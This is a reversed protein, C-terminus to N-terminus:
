SIKNTRSGSVGTIEGSIGMQAAVGQSLGCRDESQSKLLRWSTGKKGLWVKNELSCGSDDKLVSWVM